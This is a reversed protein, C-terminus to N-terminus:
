IRGPPDMLLRKFHQWAGVKTLGEGGGKRGVNRGRRRFAEMARLLGRQCGLLLRCHRRTRDRMVEMAVQGRERMAELQIIFEELLVEKEKAAKVASADGAVTVLDYVEKSLLRAQQVDRDMWWARGEERWRMEAEEEERGMLVPPGGRIVEYFSRDEEREQVEEERGGEREMRVKEEVGEEVEETWMVSRGWKKGEAGEERRRMASVERGSQRGAKGGHGSRMAKREGRDEGEKGGKGARGCADGGGKDMVGPGGTGDGARPCRRLTQSVEAGEVGLGHPWMVETYVDLAPTRSWPEQPPPPPPRQVPSRSLAQQQQQLIQEQQEVVTRLAVCQREMGLFAKRERTAAQKWRTMDALLDQVEEHSAKADRTARELAAKWAADRGGAVGETAKETEPSGEVERVATKGGNEDEERKSRFSEEM